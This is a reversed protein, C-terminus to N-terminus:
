EDPRKKSCSPKIRRNESFANRFADLRPDAICFDVCQECVEFIMYTPNTIGLNCIMCTQSPQIVIQMRIMESVITIQTVILEHIEADIPTDSVIMSTAM